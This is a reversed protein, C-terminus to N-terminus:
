IAKSEPCEDEDGRVEEVRGLLVDSVEGERERDELLRLVALAQEDPNVDAACPGIARRVREFRGADNPM